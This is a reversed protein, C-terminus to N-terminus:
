VANMTQEYIIAISFGYCVLSLTINKM